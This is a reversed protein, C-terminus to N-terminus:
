PSHFVAYHKPNSGIQVKTEITVSLEWLTIIPFVYFIKNESVMLGLVIINQTYCQKTVRKMVRSCVTDRHSLNAMGLPLPADNDEM